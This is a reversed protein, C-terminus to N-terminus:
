GTVKYFSKLNGFLQYFKDLFNDKELRTLAPILAEGHSPELEYKEAYHLDLQFGKVPEWLHVIFEGYYDDYEAPMELTPKYNFYPRKVLDGTPSYFSVLASTDNVKKIEVRWNDKSIWTGSYKDIGSRMIM